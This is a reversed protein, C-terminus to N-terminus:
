QPSRGGSLREQEERYARWSEDIVYAHIADAEEVTLPAV